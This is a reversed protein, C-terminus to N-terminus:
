GEDCQLSIVEVGRQMVRLLRPVKSRRIDGAVSHERHHELAAALKGAGGVNEVSESFEFRTDCIMPHLCRDVREATALGQARRRVESRRDVEVGRNALLALSECGRHRRLLLNTGFGKHRHKM